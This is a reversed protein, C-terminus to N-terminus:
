AALGLRHAVAAAEVRGGVDLKALIRSVHVSATKESMFLTAGIEKNTRGDAVLLLVELERPTLGLRVAPDEEAGDVAAAVPVATRLRGRRALAEAEATLATAGMASAMECSAALATGAADRDGHLLHAEAERLRAYAAPWPHALAAYAAAPEAWAAPDPLTGDAAHRVRGAEARALAAHHPGEVWQAPKAEARALEELLADTHGTDVPEGLARAREAAEAEVSLAAWVM